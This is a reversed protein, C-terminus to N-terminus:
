IRRFDIEDLLRYYKGRKLFIQSLHVGFVSTFTRLATQDGVILHNTKTTGVKDWARVALFYFNSVVSLAIMTSYGNEDFSWCTLEDIQHAISVPFKLRKVFIIHTSAICFWWLVSLLEIQVFITIELDLLVDEAALYLQSDSVLLHHCFSDV